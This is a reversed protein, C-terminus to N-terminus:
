RKKKKVRRSLSIKSFIFIYLIPLIGITNVVLLVVFWIPQRLRASKWLAVGKLAMEWLALVILALLTEKPLSMLANSIPDTIM